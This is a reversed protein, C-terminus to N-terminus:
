SKLLDSLALKLAIRQNECVVGDLLKQVETQLREAAFNLKGEGLNKNLYEGLSSDESSFNCSFHKGQFHGIIGRYETTLPLDPVMDSQIMYGSIKHGDDFLTALEYLVDLSAEGLYDEKELIKHLREDNVGFSGALFKIVEWNPDNDDEENAEYGNSEALDHLADLVQEWSSNGLSETIQIHYRGCDLNLGLSYGVYLAEIVPTIKEVLIYGFSDSMNSM